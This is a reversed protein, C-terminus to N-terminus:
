QADVDGGLVREAARWRTVQLAIVEEVRAAPLDSLHPLQRVSNVLTALLVGCISKLTAAPMDDCVVLHGDRVHRATLTNLDNHTSSCLFQFAVYDGSIGAREFKQRGRQMRLGQARLEAVRNRADRIVERHQDTVDERTAPDAM